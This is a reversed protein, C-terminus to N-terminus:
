LKIKMHETTLVDVFELIELFGPRKRGSLLLGLEGRIWRGINEKWAQPTREPHSGLNGKGAIDITQQTSSRERIGDIKRSDLEWPNTVAKDIKWEELVVWPGGLLILRQFLLRRSDNEVKRGPLLSEEVSNVNGFVLGGKSWNGTDKKPQKRVEAILVNSRDQWSDWRM